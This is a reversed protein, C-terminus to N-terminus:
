EDYKFLRMELVNGLMKLRFDGLKQPKTLPELRYDPYTNRGPPDFGIGASQLRDELWNQFHFEKDKASVRTILVSNRIAEDCALFVDSYM